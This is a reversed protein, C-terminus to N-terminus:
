DELWNYFILSSAQAERRVYAYGEAELIAHFFGFPNRMKFKGRASAKASLFLERISRAVVGEREKAKISTGFTRDMLHKTVKWYEYVEKAKTSCCAIKEKFWKPVFNLLRRDKAIREKHDKLSTKFLSTTKKTRLNEPDKHALKQAQSKGEENPRPEKNAKEEEGDFITETQIGSKVTSKFREILVINATQKGDERKAPLTTIFGIERLQKVCTGVTRKSISEGYQAEYAKCLRNETLFSIGIYKCSHMKLVELVKALRRKYDTKKEMKEFIWDRQAHFNNNLEDLSEFRRNIFNFGSEIATKLYINIATRAM